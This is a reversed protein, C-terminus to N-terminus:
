QSWRKRQQKSNAHLPESYPCNARSFLWPIHSIIGVDQRPFQSLDCMLNSLCQRLKRGPPVIRVLFYSGWPSCSIRELSLQSAFSWTIRRKKTSSLPSPHSPQASRRLVDRRQCLILELALFAPRNHKSPVRIPLQVSEIHVSHFRALNTAQGRTPWRFESETKVHCASRCTRLVSGRHPRWHECAAAPVCRCALCNRTVNKRGSCNDQFHYLERGSPASDKMRRKLSDPRIRHVISLVEPQARPSAQKANRM